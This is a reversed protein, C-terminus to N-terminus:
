RMKGEECASCSYSYLSGIINEGFTALSDGMTGRYGAACGSVEISGGNQTLDNPQNNEFTSGYLTVAGSHLWIGAGSNENANATNSSFTSGTITVVSGDDIYMAGGRGWSGPAVNRQFTCREITVTSGDRVYVGAGYYNTGCKNDVFLVNTFSTKTEQCYAAGGAIRNGLKVTVDSITTESSTGTFLM